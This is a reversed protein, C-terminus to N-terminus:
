ETVENIVKMLDKSKPVQDAKMIEMMLATEQNPMPAPKHTEVRVPPTVDVKVFKANGKEDSGREVMVFQRGNEDTEAAKKALQNKGTGVPRGPGRKPASPQAQTPVRNLRPAQLGAPASPRTALTPKAVATPEVQLIAPKNLLKVAWLRLVQLEEPPFAEGQTKAEAQLGMLVRLRGIAFTRFEQEVEAAIEDGNDFLPNDLVVRYFNAKRLRIEVETITKAEESITKSAQSAKTELESYANDVANQNQEQVEAPFSDEMDSFFPM